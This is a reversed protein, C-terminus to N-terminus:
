WVFGMKKLHGEVRKALKGVDGSLVPLTEKYREALVQIRGTLRQSLEDVVNRVGEQLAGMWKYEVVLKRIDDVALTPYKAIVKRELDIQVMKISAKVNAEREYLQMYEDLVKLEDAYDKDDKIERIRKALDAKKVKSNDVVEGLLGEEEDGHESILEEMNAAIAGLEVNFDDIQKQEASFYTSILLPVPVLRGELGELGRIDKRHGNTGKKLRMVEKGAEWGDVTIIHADDQMTEGWYGMLLQHIDYKDVLYVDAYADLLTDSIVQIVAKPHDKKSIEKLTKITKRKWSAFTDLVHDRFGEFEKHSLTISRVEEVSM